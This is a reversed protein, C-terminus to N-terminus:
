SNAIRDFVALVEDETRGEAHEWDYIGGSWQAEARFAAFLASMPTLTRRTVGEIVCVVPYGHIDNHPSWGSTRIIEACAIAHQRVQESYKRM